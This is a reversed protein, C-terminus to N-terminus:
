TGTLNLHQSLQRTLGLRTQPARHTAPSQNQSPLKVRPLSFSYQVAATSHPDSLTGRGSDQCVVAKGENFVSAPDGPHGCKPTGVANFLINDFGSAAAGTSRQGPCHQKQLWCWGGLGLLVLFVFFLLAGGIAVPVSVLAAVEGSSLSTMPVRWM